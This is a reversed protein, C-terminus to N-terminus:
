DCCRVPLQAYRCVVLEIGAARVFCPIVFVIMLSRVYWVEFWRLCLVYNMGWIESWEERDDFVEFRVFVDVWINM